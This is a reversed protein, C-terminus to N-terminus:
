GAKGHLKGDERQVWKQLGKRFRLKEAEAKRLANKRLLTNAPHLGRIAKQIRTFKGMVIPVAFIIFEKPYFLWHVIGQRIVFAVAATRGPVDLKVFINSLHRNVTRPSITLTGAVERDTHGKAVLHLVELERKTLYLNCNNM